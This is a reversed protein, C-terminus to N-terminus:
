RTGFERRGMGNRRRTSRGAGTRHRCLAGGQAGTQSRLRGHRLGPLRRPGRAHRQGDARRHAIHVDGGEDRRWQATAELGDMEPMQVDMLVLDFSRAGLARLVELGNEVVEVRHGVEKLMTVAVRQNIKNDEALLICLSRETQGAITSDAVAIDRGLAALLAEM